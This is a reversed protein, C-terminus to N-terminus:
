DFLRQQNAVVRKRADAILIRLQDKWGRRAYPYFAPILWLLCLSDTGAANM